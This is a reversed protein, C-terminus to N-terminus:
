RWDGFLVFAAWRFPPATKGGARILDIQAARLADAKTQGSQLYGYFRVMLDATSRDSVQWLSAVVSRAGAYQFARRLGMLGEGGMEQGLATECGSLTVLEADLRVSDFIEWVQLLGNDGGETDTAPAALVLGSNLPLRPDLTAHCAFHVYSCRRPMAKARAETAQDGLYAVAGKGFLASIAEVERRAFRLSEFHVAQRSGV